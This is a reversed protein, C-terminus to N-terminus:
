RRTPGPMDGFDHPRSRSVLSRNTPTRRVPWARRKSSAACCLFRIPKYVTETGHILGAGQYRLPDAQLRYGTPRPNGPVPAVTRRLGYASRRFGRGPPRDRASYPCANSADACQRQKAEPRRPCRQVAVCLRPWRLDWTLSFQRRVSLPRGTESFYVHAALVPFTIDSRIQGEADFVPPGLRYFRYGGGGKWGVSKSIGGQEGEIVKNLRPVCHTVAHEGM